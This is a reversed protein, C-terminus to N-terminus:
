EVCKEATLVIAPTQATAIATNYFAFVCLCLAAFGCGFPTWVTKRTELNIAQLRGDQGAAVGRKNKDIRSALSLIRVTWHGRPSDKYDFVVLGEPSKDTQLKL